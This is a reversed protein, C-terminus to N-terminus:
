KADQNIADRITHGLRDVAGYLTKDVGGLKKSLEQIAGRVYHLSGDPADRAHRWQSIDIQIEFVALPGSPGEGEVRLTYIQPEDGVLLESVPGLYWEITRNPALSHLGSSLIKQAQAAQSQHQESTSLPPDFMVTINRATTPGSNGVVLQFVTGQRMDPQIDAWVYPQLAEQALERQLQTQERAAAVQELQVRTQDNAAKAQRAAAWAAWVTFPLALGSFVIAIISIVM